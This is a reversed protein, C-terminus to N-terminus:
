TTIPPVPAQVVSEPLGLRRRMYKAVVEARTLWDTLQATPANKPVSQWAVDLATREITSMLTIFDLVSFVPAPTASAGAPAIQLKALVESLQSRVESLEGRYIPTPTIPTDHIPIPNCTLDDSM